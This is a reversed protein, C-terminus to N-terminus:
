LPPWECGQGDGWRWGCLPRGPRLPRANPPFARPGALHCGSSLLWLIFICMFQAQLHKLEGFPSSSTTHLPKSKQKQIQEAFCCCVDGRAVHLSGPFTACVQLLADSCLFLALTLLLLCMLSFKLFLCCVWRLDQTKKQPTRDEFSTITAARRRRLQQVTHLTNTAM